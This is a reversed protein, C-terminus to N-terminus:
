TYRLFQDMKKPKLKYPNRLNELENSKMPEVSHSKLHSNSNTLTNNKKNFDQFERFLTYKGKQPVEIDNNLLPNSDKTKIYGKTM